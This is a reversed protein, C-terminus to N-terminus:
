AVTEAIALVTEVELPAYKAYIGVRVGDLTLDVAAPNGVGNEAVNRPIVLAPVGRVQSVQVGAPWGEAMEQYQAGPDDAFGVQSAPELLVLIGSTYDIAVQVVPTPSSDAPVIQVFVYKVIADNALPHSPRPLDFSVLAQAEELSSVRGNGFPGLERPHSIGQSIGQLETPSSFPMARSGNRGGEAEGGTSSVFFATALAVLGVVGAALVTGIAHRVRLKKARRMVPELNASVEPITLPTQMIRSRLEKEEQM